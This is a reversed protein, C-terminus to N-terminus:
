VHSSHAEVIQCPTAEWTDLHCDVKTPAPAELTVRYWIARVTFVKM